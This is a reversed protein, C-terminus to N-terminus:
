NNKQPQTQAENKNMKMTLHPGLVVRYLKLLKTAKGIAETDTLEVGYQRFYIEKFKQLGEASVM